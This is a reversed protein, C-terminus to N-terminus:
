SIRFRAYNATGGTAPNIGLGQGSAVQGIAVGYLATRKSLAYTAGLNVQHFRTSGGGEVHARNFIYAAGLTWTPTLNYTTNLEAIDFTVDAGDPRASSAFYASNELKTHTYVLAVMADGLTISGGIGAAKMARANQLNCYM